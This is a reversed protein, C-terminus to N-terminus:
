ASGRDRGLLAIAAVDLFSRLEHSTAPGPRHTLMTFLARMSMGLALLGRYAAAGARSYHQHRYRIANAYYMRRFRRSGLKGAAVGGVHEVRAAPWYVISGHDALRRCLDVDEWYAPRFREDFGGVAEFDTRRVAFAAAAAQEVDFPVDRDTDLYRDRRHRANAPLARDILLLERADSGLTPLRRLQFELQSDAGSPEADVLRPAIAIADPRAEFAGAIERLTGEEVLTDPNLFFLIEGRAASAGQNCAPGFGRNDENAIVTARQGAAAVAASGQAENVVVIVEPADGTGASEGLRRLSRTLVDSDRWSVYIVSISM